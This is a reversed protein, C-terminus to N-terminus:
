GGSAGAPEAVAVLEEGCGLRASVAGLPLFVMLLGAEIWRNLRKQPHLGLLQKVSEPWWDPPSFQTVRISKYGAARLAAELSPRTFLSIHFPIWSTISYRRLTRMSLSRGHPVYIHIKGGPRLLKRCEQLFLDPAPVHELVNDLRVVDFAVMPLDSAGVEGIVFTGEPVNKAAQEIAAPSVDLGWVDWGRHAFEVLKSADGCGIDILRRGNGPETPWSHPRTRFRRSARQFLSPHSSRAAAASAVESLDKQSLFLHEYM